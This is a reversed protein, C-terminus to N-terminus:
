NPPNAMYKSLAPIPKYSFTTSELFDYAQAHAEFEKLRHCTQRLATLALVEEPTLVVPNKISRKPDNLRILAQRLYQTLRSELRMEPLDFASDDPTPQRAVKLYHRFLRRYLPMLTRQSEVPTELEAELLNLIVLIYDLDQKKQHLIDYGARLVISLTMSNM